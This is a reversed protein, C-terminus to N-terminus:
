IEEIAKGILQKKIEPNSEVQTLLYKLSTLKNDIKLKEYQFFVGLLSMIVGFGFKPLEELFPTDGKLFISFILAICGVTLFVIVIIKYRSRNSILNEIRHSIYEVESTM